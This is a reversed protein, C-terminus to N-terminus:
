GGEPDRPSRRGPRLAHRVAFAAGVGLAAGALADSPFHATGMSQAARRARPTRSAALAAATAFWPVGFNAGRSLRPLVPEATPWQREAAFTFLQADFALLRDRLGHRGPKLVAPGVDPIM